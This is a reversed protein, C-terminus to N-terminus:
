SLSRQQYNREQYKKLERVSAYSVTSGGIANRKSQSGHSDSGGTVLVGYQRTLELYHKIREHNHEPHYVEIGDIGQPILKAIIEDPNDLTGPHALIAVGGADHIIDVARRVTIEMKHVYTPSEFNLYKAFAEDFTYVLEEEVMAGAIHPRGIPASGAQKLVTEFKLDVGIANLNLVMKQARTYRAERFADLMEQLHVDHIDMLYGLIHIDQGYDVASLEMGSIIELDSESTLAIAREVNEVSDHDTIAIAQLHSAQARELVEECSFRGDSATTHIHLDASREM